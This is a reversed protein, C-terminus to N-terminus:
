AISRLRATRGAIEAANRPTTGLVLLALEAGLADALGRGVTLTEEVGVALADESGGWTCVLVRSMLTGRGARAAGRAGAGGRRARGSPVRLPGARAARIPPHRRDEARPGGRRPRAVDATVVTPKVRRAQIKRAATPYRPTGLENSVTVVAPLSAEVVEDGDPTVRTVRVAAGDAALEVARAITVIPMGLREGVLAAVVGQDDDSAQRGCLVLDM